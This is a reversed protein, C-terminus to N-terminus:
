HSIIPVQSNNKFETPYKNMIFKVKSSCIEKTARNPNFIGQSTCTTYDVTYGRFVVHNPFWEKALFYYQHRRCTLIQKVKETIGSRIARSVRTYNKYHHLYIIYITVNILSDIYCLHGFVEITLDELSCCSISMLEWIQNISEHM